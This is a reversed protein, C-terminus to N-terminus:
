IHLTCFYETIANGGGITMLAKLGNIKMFENNGSILGM